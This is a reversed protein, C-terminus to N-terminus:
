KGEQYQNKRFLNIILRLRLTDLLFYGFTRLSFINRKFPSCVLAPYTEYFVEPFKYNKPFKYDYSMFLKSMRSFAKLDKNQNSSRQIYSTHFYKEKQWSIQYKGCQVENNDGDFFGEIGYYGGCHIGPIKTSYLRITSAENKDLFAFVDRGPKRYHFIDKACNIYHQAVLLPEEASNAIAILEEISDKWWIEDGDLIMFYDTETKELMEQRLVGLRTRDVDGKEEFIIKDEYGSGIISQIIAVTNDTSGTDFIIMKDVYDIVSMIAFWIFRDENKVMTHATITRRM